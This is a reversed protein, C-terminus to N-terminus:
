TISKTGFLKIFRDYNRLKERYVAEADEDMGIRKASAWERFNACHAITQCDNTLYTIARELTPEKLRAPQRIHFTAQKRSHKDRIKCAFVSFRPTCLSQLLVCCITTTATENKSQMSSEAM